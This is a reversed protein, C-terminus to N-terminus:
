SYPSSRPPLNSPTSIREREFRETSLDRSLRTAEKETEALREYLRATERHHADAREEATVARERLM